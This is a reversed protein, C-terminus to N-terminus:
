ADDQKDLLIVDDWGLDIRRRAEDFHMLYIVFARGM